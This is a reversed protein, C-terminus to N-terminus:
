FGGFTEQLRELTSVTRIALTDGEDLGERVEVRADDRLGLRVEVKQPEDGTLREVFTRGSEREVQVARNPILLVDERTSAIITATASMGVRLPVDPDDIDIRVSYTVGGTALTNSSPAVRAVKGALTQDPLADIEIAVEQDPAIAAVDIEDVQVDLHFRTTDALQFAPTGPQALTGPVVNVVTVVSDWPATLVANDLRRRAQELALEAQDVGAQAVDLQAQSPGQTLRDLSAQAQAIQAQAQALQAPTSGKTTVRYQAEAAEYNITAQQLQLSQPLMGVDPRDKVKDYAQQAQDLQVRAQEVQARAAAFQDQDVGKLLQQYAEQASALAAQAAALDSDSPGDQLQDFQAQAQRVGIEAQRIALDLDTTDLRALVQGATVPEGVAIAVEEITGTSQFALNAEREALVAGTASVTAAINGREVKVVDWAPAEAAQAQNFQQYVFWGGAGLVALVLVAVLFKRM